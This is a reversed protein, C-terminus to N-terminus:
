YSYVCRNKYKQTPIKINMNVSKPVDYGVKLKRDIVLNGKNNTHYASSNWKVFAYDSINNNSFSLEISDQIQQAIMQEYSNDDKKPRNYTKFYEQLYIKINESNEKKRKEKEEKNRKDTRVVKSVYQTTTGVIEAIKNQKLHQNYYLDLIKEKNSM